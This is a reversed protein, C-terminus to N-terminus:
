SLNHSLPIFTRFKRGTQEIADVLEITADMGINDKINKRVRKSDDAQWGTKKIIRIVFSQLTKQQIQYQRIKHFRGDAFIADYVPWIPLKKGSPLLLFESERGQLEFRPLNTKCLCKESIMRGIDGPQYRLLPMVRNTLSTMTLNGYKGTACPNGADDLAELIIHESNLHLTNVRDKCSFGITGLERAGYLGYVECQFVKKIYERINANMMEGSFVVLRPRLMIVDAEAWQALYWLASPAGYLVFPSNIQLTDYIRRRDELSPLELGTEYPLSLGHAFFALYYNTTQPYNFMVFFKRSLNRRVSFSFHELSRLYYCAYETFHLRRDHSWTIPMGLVGTTTRSLLPSTHRATLLDEPPLGVLDAKKQPPLKEIEELPSSAQPDVRAAEFVTRWYRAKCAATLVKKLRRSQLAEMDREGMLETRSLIELYSKIIQRYLWTVARENRRFLSLPALKKVSDLLFLIM